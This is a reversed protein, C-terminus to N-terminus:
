SELNDIAKNLIFGLDKTIPSIDIKGVENNSQKDGFIDVRQVHQQISWEMSIELIQDKFKIEKVYNFDRFEAM